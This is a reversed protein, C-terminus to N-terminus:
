KENDTENCVSLDRNYVERSLKDIFSELTMKKTGGFADRVSLSGSELEKDGVIVMYPIKMMQADRVKKSVGEGREDIEVRFGRERCSKQITYCRDHHRDGIPLLRIQVPSLWLPLWGAFHELLIGFFRDVSGFIARHIMVPEYDKGDSAVYKLGFRDPMSFDLQITGCQWSRNLSDCVHFDIKPGYFAGDGANIQYSIGQDDMANKLASEAKQWMADSGISKDPRTSLEIRFDSFGFTEYVFFVYEITQQIEAEVQDPTCFIHADDQVFSRVRFLGHTVGSKEHRHVKGFEAMRWPLDRYSRRGGRYVLLHGPCNMPKVAFDKEDVKTFYMNERYNDYHGSRHWLDESLVLPTLIEEYGRQRNQRRAFEILENFVVAGKPHYFPNAPAEDHFSFLDLQKGLLRHDRKRAEELRTLYGELEEKSTFATGYLRQLMPNHEDGRWYAGAVSTIRFHKIKKTYSLHPGRCLDSFDGQEYVSITEGEPLDRILELKYPQDERRFKEEAERRSLEIRKIPINEKAIKKMEGEIAPFDDDTITHDLEMDYYFGNEITPGIGLKVPGWLRSVAHAMLHAASHRLVDLGNDAAM